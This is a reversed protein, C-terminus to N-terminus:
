YLTPSFVQLWGQDDDVHLIFIKGGVALPNDRLALDGKGLNLREQIGEAFPIERDDVDAVFTKIRLGSDKSGAAHPCLYYLTELDEWAFWRNDLM